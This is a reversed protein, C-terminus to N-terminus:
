LRDNALEIGHDVRRQLFRLHQRAHPLQLHQHAATVFGLRSPEDLLLPREPALHDLCGAHRLLLARGTMRTCAAWSLAFLTPRINRMRFSSFGIASLCYSRAVWSRPLMTLRPCTLTQM